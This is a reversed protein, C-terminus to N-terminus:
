EVCGRLEIAHLMRQGDAEDDGWAGLALAGDGDHDVVLTAPDLELFVQEPELRGGEAGFRVHLDRGVYWAVDAIGDADFDGSHHADIGDALTEQELVDGDFGFEVRHLEDDLHLLVRVGAATRTPSVTYPGLGVVDTEWVDRPVGGELRRLVLSSTSTPPFQTEHSFLLLDPDDAVVEVWRLDHPWADGWSIDRGEAPLEVRIVHYMTEFTIVDSRRDDFLDLVALPRFCGSSFRRGSAAPLGDPGSSHWQSWWGCEVLPENFEVYLDERGDGDFDAFGGFWGDIEFHRGARYSGDPSRVLADAITRREVSDGHASWWVEPVRDGDTDAFTLPRDAPYRFLDTVTVCRAVADSDSARENCGVLSHLFAVSVVLGKLREAM